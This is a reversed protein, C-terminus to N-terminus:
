QEQEKVYKGHLLYPAQFDHQCNSYAMGLGMGSGFALPWMRRKFFTLSFVIGLGFGTGIKVVADAMCRDWKQGLESESMNGVRLELKRSPRGGRASKRCTERSGAGNGPGSPRRGGELYRSISPSSEDRGTKKLQDDLHHTAQLGSTVRVKSSSRLTVTEDAAELAPNFGRRGM